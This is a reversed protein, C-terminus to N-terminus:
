ILGGLLDFFVFYIMPNVIIDILLFVVIPSLDIMIMRGRMLRFILNRIPLLIPETMKYVFVTFGNYLGPFWSLICRIVLLIEYIRVASLLMRGILIMM